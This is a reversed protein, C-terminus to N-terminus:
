SWPRRRGRDFERADLVRDLPRDLELGPHRRAVGLAGRGIFARRPTASASTKTWPLSRKPAATPKATRRCCAAGGPPMAMVWETRQCSTLFRAACNSRVSHTSNLFMSSCNSIQSHVRGPSGGASARLAADALATAPLAAARGPSARSRRAAGAAEGLGSGRQDGVPRHRHRGGVARRDGHEGEVVHRAVRRGFEEGVADDLLDGRRQRADAVEGDDRPVGGIGVLALRHVHALHRAGEADAVHEFPAQALRAVAHADRRLQDVGHGAGMEPGVAVVADDVVEEVELVLDGLPDGAGHARRDARGLDREGAALPRFAEGGVVQREPRQRMEPRVPALVICSAM